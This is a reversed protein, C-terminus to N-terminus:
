GESEDHGRLGVMQRALLLLTSCIKSLRERNKRIHTTRSSDLKQLINSSSAERQKHSLYNATAIMHCQSSAHRILGSAKDLAKKWKSFGITSFADESNLKNSSFHRCFFCYCADNQISYELWERDVYWNPQFSRHQSNVPFCKLRPQAPVDRHSKSIDDPVPKSECSENLGVSTSLSSSSTDSILDVAAQDAYESVVDNASVPDSEISLIVSVPDPEISPIAFSDIANTETQEQDHRPKKHRGLFYAEITHRKEPNM